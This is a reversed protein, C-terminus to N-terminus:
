SVVRRRKWAAAGALGSGILLLSAPEPTPSPAGPTPTTVAGLFYQERGATGGSFTTTFVLNANSPLATLNFGTISADSYGNGPNMPTLVTPASTRYLVSGNVSLTFSQLNFAGDDHGPAQNLGVGVYFTDGLMNSIQAVTYSPSSIMDADDHPPILTFAFSSPNHCSPDGIVCPRNETQQLSPGAKVTLKIPDAAAPRPSAAVAAVAVIAAAAVRSTNRVGM